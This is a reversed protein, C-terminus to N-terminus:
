YTRIPQQMFVKLSSEISFVGPQNVHHLVLSVYKSSMSYYVRCVECDHYDCCLMLVVMTAYPGIAAITKHQWLWARWLGDKLVQRIESIGL